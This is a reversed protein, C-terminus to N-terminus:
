LEQEGFGDRAFRDDSETIGEFYTSCLRKLKQFFFEGGELIPEGCRDCNFTFHAIM